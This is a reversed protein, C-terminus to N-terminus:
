RILSLSVFNALVRKTNTENTLRKCANKHNTFVNMLIQLMRLLNVVSEAHQKYLIRLTRLFNTLIPLFAYSNRLCESPTMNTKDLRLMEVFKYRIEFKRLNEYECPYERQHSLLM